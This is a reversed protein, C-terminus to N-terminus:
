IDRAADSLDAALVASLCVGFVIIALTAGVAPALSEGAVLAIAAAIAGQTSALPTVLTVQGVRLARYELVLGAVNGVGGLALWAGASGDLGAPVGQLAAAPGSILLGRADGVAGGVCARDAPELALLVSGLHGV